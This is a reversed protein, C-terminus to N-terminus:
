SCNHVYSHPRCIRTKGTCTLVETDIFELSSSIMMAILCRASIFIRNNRVFSIGCAQGSLYCRRADETEWDAFVYM